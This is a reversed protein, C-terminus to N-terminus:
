SPIEEVSTGKKRVVRAQVLNVCLVLWYAMRLLLVAIPKLMSSILNCLAITIYVTHYKCKKFFACKNISDFQLGLFHKWMAVYVQNKLTPSFICQLFSLMKLLHHQYFQSVTHLLIFTFRHRGSHLFSLELHFLSRFYSKIGNIQYFFFHPSLRSSVPVPFSKIFM